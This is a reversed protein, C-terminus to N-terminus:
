LLPQQYSAPMRKFNLPGDPGNLMLRGSRLQVEYKSTYIPDGLEVAVGNSHTTRVVLAAGDRHWCGTENLAQPPKRTRKLQEGYAMSGDQKLTLQVHMEGAVGKRKSVALWNGVWADNSAAPQCAEVQPAEKKVSAAPGPKTATTCGAVWGTAALLAVGICCRRVVGSSISKGSQRM